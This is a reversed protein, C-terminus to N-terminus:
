FDSEAIDPARVLAARLDPAYNAQEADARADRESHGVEPERQDDAAGDPDADRQEQGQQHRFAPEVPGRGRVETAHPTEAAGGGVARPQDARPRNQQHDDADREEAAEPAFADVPQPLRVQEAVDM